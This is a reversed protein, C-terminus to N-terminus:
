AQQVVFKCCISLIPRYLCHRNDNKLKLSQFATSLVQREEQLESQVQQLRQSSTFFRLFEVDNRCVVFYVSSDSVRTAM